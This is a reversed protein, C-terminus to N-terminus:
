NYINFNDSPKLIGEQWFFIKGEVDKLWQVITIELDALAEFPDPNGTVAPYSKFNQMDEPAGQACRRGSISLDTPVKLFPPEM